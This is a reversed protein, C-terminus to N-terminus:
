KKRGKMHELIYRALRNRARKVEPDNVVGYADYYSPMPLTFKNKVEKCNIFLYTWNKVM